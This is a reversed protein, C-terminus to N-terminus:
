RAVANSDEEGGMGAIFMPGIPNQDTGHTATLLHVFFRRLTSERAQYIAPMKHRAALAV